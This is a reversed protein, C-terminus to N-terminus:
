ERTIHQTAISRAMRRAFLRENGAGKERQYSARSVM